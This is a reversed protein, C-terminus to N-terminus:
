IRYGLSLWLRPKHRTIPDAQPEGGKLSWAAAAELQWREGNVRVGLGAGALTRYNQATGATPVTNIRVRGADLMVFPAIAGINHRLELQALAGRDGVGEGSPYARVGSIGGLSIRESSDLNKDAWQASFRAYLSSDPTFVTQQQVLDLNFKLFRGRTQNSDLGVLADSLRLRGNTVSLSGYSIGGLGLSNRRDFDLSLPLSQSSKDDSSNLNRDQLRKYQYRLSLKVNAENSRLVPYTLGLSATKAYGQAKSDAFEKGLQYDSHSYSAEARLGHRGLPRSYGLSGLWLKQDSFLSRLSVQDGLSFPSNWDLNLQLRHAGSYRNGHNDAGVSGVLAPAPALEVLLDGSGVKEGPQMLPTVAVGPLDGLILVSRELEPSRIVTDPQLMSLYPAAQEAWDPRNSIPKIQGYRGELLEVRLTGDSLEQPPLYARAFPYGAQQYFLGVREALLQLGALDLETNLLDAVTAELTKSDIVSNGGFSLAKVQVKRGGPLALQNKPNNLKLQVGPKPAEPPAQRSQQLIQGADPAAQARAVAPAALALLSSVAVAVLCAPYPASHHDMAAHPSNPKLAQSSLPKGHPQSM